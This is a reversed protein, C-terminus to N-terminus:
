PKKAIEQQVGSFNRIWPQGAQLAAPLSKIAQTAANRNPFSGYTVVYLPRGEHQKTFYRYGSGHQKVLAQANSENRTGLIQILYNGAPQSGYWGAAAVPAPTAM